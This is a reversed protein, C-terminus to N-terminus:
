TALQRYQIWRKFNASWYTGRRDRHTVGEDWTCDNMHLRMPSAQHEFPTLHRFDLLMSSLELDKAVSPAANDHTMYSVRACRAASCLRAEVLKNPDYDRVYPLHWEGASLVRLKGNERVEDMASKMCRALEQIEPQADPALRLTFFNNWETGTVVKKQWSWPELYRNVHQKHVTDQYMSLTNVAVERLRALDTLFAARVNAPVNKDGQMGKQARRIDTPYFSANKAIKTFPIARSSSSNSSLMRHKEFEADIFKPARTEITWLETDNAVSAAVVHAEIGSEGIQSSLYM